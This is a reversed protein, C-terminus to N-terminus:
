ACGRDRPAPSNGSLPDLQARSRRLVERGDVRDIGVVDQVPEGAEFLLWRRPLLKAPADLIHQAAAQRPQDGIEAAGDGAVAVARGVARARRIAIGQLVRDVHTWVRELAADALRQEGLEDAAALGRAIALEDGHDAVPRM